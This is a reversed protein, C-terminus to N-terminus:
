KTNLWTKEKAYFKIPASKYKKILANSLKKNQAGLKGLATIKAKTLTTLDVVNLMTQYNQADCEAELKLFLLTKARDSESAVCFPKTPSTWKMEVDRMSQM